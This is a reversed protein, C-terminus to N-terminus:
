RYLGKIRGWSAQRAPSIIPCPNPCCTHWEPHFIGGLGQECELQTGVVYCDLPLCCVWEGECPNEPECDTDPGLWEGDMQMCSYLTLELCSGDSLCCAGDPPPSQTPM